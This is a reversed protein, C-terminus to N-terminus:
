LYTFTIYLMNRYTNCYLDAMNYYIAILKKGYQKVANRSLTEVFWLDVLVFDVSVFRTETIWGIIQVTAM